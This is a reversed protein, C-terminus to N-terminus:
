DPATWIVPFEPGDLPQGPKLGLDPFPPSHTGREVYIADDGVVRLSFARRRRDQHRNAPAGHVTRFDFAIADGPEMDWGRIDYEDRRAAIDPMRERTDGETLASGDFREPMFERGWRHSGAVYEVVTDRAVRDLAVWFSCTQPGDVCYYPIDHHWPTAVTTGPEKVLVHEHFLRVTRAGMLRAALPGAPSNFIFDRFEPIRDWVCFDQFFQTPSYDPHYLRIRWSPEAINAEIGARLPEVWDGFVGRLLLVGDQRFAAAEDDSVDFLESDSM